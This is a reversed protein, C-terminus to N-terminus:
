AGGPPATDITGGKPTVVKTVAKYGLLPFLVGSCIGVLAGWSETLFTLAQGVDMIAFLIVDLMTAVILAVWVNSSVDNFGDRKWIKVYHRVISIAAGTIFLVLVAPLFIWTRAIWLEFSGASMAGM